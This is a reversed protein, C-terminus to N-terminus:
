GGQACLRHAEPQRTGAQYETPNKRLFWQMTWSFSQGPRLETFAGQHEIEVYSKQPIDKNAYLEVEGENPAAAEFTIDPFKKILIVDGNVEAFWGESGDTYLQADGQAPIKKRIM